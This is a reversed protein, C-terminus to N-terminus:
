AARGFIFDALTLGLAKAINEAIELAAHRDEDNEAQAAQSVWHRLATEGIDGVAEAAVDGLRRPQEDPARDQFDLEDLAWASKRHADLAFGRAFQPDHSNSKRFNKRYLTPM